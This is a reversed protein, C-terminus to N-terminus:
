DGPNQSWNIDSNQKHVLYIYLCMKVFKERFQNVNVGVILYQDVGEIRALLKIYQFLINKNPRM